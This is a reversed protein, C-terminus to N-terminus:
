IISTSPLECSVKIALKIPAAAIMLFSFILFDRFNLLMMMLAAGRFYFSKRGEFYYKVRFQLSFCRRSAIRHSAIVISPTTPKFVFYFGVSRVRNLLEFVHWTMAMMMIMRHSFLYFYVRVYLFTERKEKKNQKKREPRPLSSIFLLKSWKKQRRDTRPFIKDRMM